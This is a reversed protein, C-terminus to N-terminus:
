NYDYTAIVNMFTIAIIVFATYLPDAPLIYLPIFTSQLACENRRYM